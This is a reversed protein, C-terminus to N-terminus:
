AIYIACSINITSRPMWRKYAFRPVNAAGKPLAPCIRLALLFNKRIKKNAASRRNASFSDCSWYYQRLM